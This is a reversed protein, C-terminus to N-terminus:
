TEGERQIPLRAVDIGIGLVALADVYAALSIVVLVLFERHLTAVSPLFSM